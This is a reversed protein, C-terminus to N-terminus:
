PLQTGIEATEDPALRFSAANNWGDVQQAGRAVGSGLLHLQRRERRGVARMRHPRVPPPEELQRRRAGLGRIRGGYYTLRENDARCLQSGCRAECALAGNEVARAVFSARPLIRCILMRAGADDEAVVVSVRARNGLRPKSASPRYITDSGHESSAITRKM